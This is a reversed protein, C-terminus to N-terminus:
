IRVNTEEEGEKWKFHVLELDGVIQELEFQYPSHKICKEIKAKLNPSKNIIEVLTNYRKRIVFLKGEMQKLTMSM